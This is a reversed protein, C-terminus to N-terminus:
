YTTSAFQLQECKLGKWVFVVFHITYEIELFCLLADECGMGSRRLCILFCTIDM